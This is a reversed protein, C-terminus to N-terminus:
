LNARGGLVKRVVSTGDMETWTTSGTLPHVLRKLHTKWTGIEFDFDHQGDRVSPGGPNQRAIAGVPLALALVGCLLVARRRVPRAEALARRRAIVVRARPPLVVAKAGETVITM